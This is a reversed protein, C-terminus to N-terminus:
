SDKLNVNMIQSVCLVAVGIPQLKLLYLFVVSVEEWFNKPALMQKSLVSHLLCTKFRICEPTYSFLFIDLM